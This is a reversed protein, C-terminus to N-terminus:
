SYIYKKILKIIKLIIGKPLFLIYEFTSNGEKLIKKVFNIRKKSPKRVAFIVASVFLEKKRKNFNVDIKLEERAYRELECTLNYDDIIRNENNIYVLSTINTGDKKLVQRYASMVRNIKYFNGQALYFLVATRDGIMRHAEYFISYDYKPNLFINRRVFTAVQGPLWIGEFDNLTFVERSKVWEISQNKCVKGSEDVILCDHTTAIYDVNKELFDVQIQLKNEDIWYDDGECTALYKGRASTLLEYANRTAGLNEKRLYLRFLNPYKQYYEKLINPTEDKSCDDGVLIEYAFNVKQMLISDIAQRIYREHNYTLIIVSVMIESM